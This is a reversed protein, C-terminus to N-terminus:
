GLATCETKYGLGMHWTKCSRKGLNLRELLNNIEKETKKWGSLDSSIGCLAVKEGDNNYVISTRCDLIVEKGDNTYNIVEGQWSGEGLTKELIEKSM